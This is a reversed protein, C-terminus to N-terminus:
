NSRPGKEGKGCTLFVELFEMAQKGCRQCATL